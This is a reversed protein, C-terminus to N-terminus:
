RQPSKAGHHSTSLNNAHISWQMLPEADRGVMSGPAHSRTALITSKLKYKHRNVLIYHIGHSVRGMYRSRNTMSPNPRLVSHLICFAVLHQLKALVPHLRRQAGNDEKGKASALDGLWYHICMPLTLQGLQATFVHGLYTSMQTPIAGRWTKRVTGKCGAPAREAQFWIVNSGRSVLIVIRVNHSVLQSAFVTPAVREDVVRAVDRAM